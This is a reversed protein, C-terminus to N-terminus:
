LSVHCIFAYNHYSVSIEDSSFCLSQDFLLLFSLTQVKQLACSSDAVETYRLKDNSSSSRITNGGNSSFNVNVGNRLCGDDANTSKFSSGFNRFHNAGIVKLMARHDDNYPMREQLPLSFVPRDGLQPLSDGASLKDFSSDLWRSNLFDRTSQPMTDRSCAQPFTDPKRQKVLNKGDDMSNSFNIITSKKDDAKAKRKRKKAVSLEKETRQTHLPCPVLDKGPFSSRVPSAYDYPDKTSTEQFRDEVVQFRRNRQKGKIPVKDFGSDTSQHSEVSPRSEAGSVTNEESDCSKSANESTKGITSLIRSAYNAMEDAPRSEEPDECSKRKRGRVSERKSPTEESRKSLLESLLRVKRTKRRNSHGLLNRSVPSANDCEDRHSYRDNKKFTKDPTDDVVGAVEFPGYATVAEMTEKSRKSAQEPSALLKSSKSKVKSGDTARRRVKKLLKVACSVSTVYIYRSPSLVVVIM